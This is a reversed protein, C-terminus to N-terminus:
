FDYLDNFDDDIKGSNWNDPDGSTAIGTEEEVSMEETEPPLYTAWQHKNNTKM